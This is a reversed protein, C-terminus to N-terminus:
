PCSAKPSRITPGRRPRPSRAQALGSENSFIGRAIGFRIGQMVTAGAFGGAAASPSFADSLVLLAIDPLTRWNIALVILGGVLYFLIMTPVIVSATKAISQIGGLVVLATAIAIIAGSVALPVGFTARLADAVSNAQVLNGIGFAAM